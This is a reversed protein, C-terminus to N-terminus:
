RAPRHPDPRSIPVTPLATSREVRDRHVGSNISQPRPGTLELEEMARLQRRGAGPRAPRLNAPPSYYQWRRDVFYPAPYEVFRDDDFSPLVTGPLARSGAQEREGRAQELATRSERLRRAQNLISWPDALPDYDPSRSEAIDITTVASDDRPKEDSYHVVGDVDIWRYIEAASTTGTLFLTLFATHQLLTSVNM